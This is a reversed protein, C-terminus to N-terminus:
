NNSEEPIIEVIPNNIYNILNIIDEHKYHENYGYPGFIYGHIIIGALESPDSVISVLNLLINKIELIKNENM